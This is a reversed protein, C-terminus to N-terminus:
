EIVNENQISELDYTKNSSNQAQRKKTLYCLKFKPSVLRIM